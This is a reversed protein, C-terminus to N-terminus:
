AQFVHVTPAMDMAVNFCAVHEQATITQCFKSVETHVACVENGPDLRTAMIRGFM